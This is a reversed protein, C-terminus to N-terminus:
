QTCGGVNNPREDSEPLPLEDDFDYNSVSVPKAIVEGNANRIRGESDSNGASATAGDSGRLSDIVIDLALFSLADLRQRHIEQKSEISAARRGLERIQDKANDLKREHQRDHELLHRTNPIRDAVDKIWFVMVGLTVLVGIFAILVLIDM